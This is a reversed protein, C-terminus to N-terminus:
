PNSLATPQYCLRLSCAATVGEGEQSPTVAREREPVNGALM